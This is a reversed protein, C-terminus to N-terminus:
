KTAVGKFFNYFFTGSPEASKHLDEIGNEWTELNVFKKEIAIEIKPFPFLKGTSDGELSLEM